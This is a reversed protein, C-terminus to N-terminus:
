PTAHLQSMVISAMIAFRQSMDCTDVRQQRQGNIASRQQKQAALQASSLQYASSSLQKNSHAATSAASQHQSNSRRATAALQHKRGSYTSGIYYPAPCLQASSTSQYAATSTRSMIRSSILQHGEQHSFGECAFYSNAYNARAFYFGDFKAFNLEYDHKLKPQM